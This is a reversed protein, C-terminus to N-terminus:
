SLAPVWHVVAGGVTYAFLSALEALAARHRRAATRLEVVREYLQESCLLRGRTVTCCHLAQHLGGAARGGAAGAPRDAPGAHRHLEGCVGAAGGGDPHAARLLGAGGAPQVPAAADPPVLDACHLETTNLVHETGTTYGTGPSGHAPRPRPGRKTCSLVIAPYITCSLGSASAPLWSPPAAM